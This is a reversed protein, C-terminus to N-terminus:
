GEAKMRESFAAPYLSAAYYGLPRTRYYDPIGSATGRCNGALGGRYWRTKLGLFARDFAEDLVDDIRGLARLRDHCYLFGATASSELRTAPEDIVLHWLGTDPDQHRVLGALTQAITAALRQACPDTEPLAHLSETAGLIAWQQARSWAAGRSGGDSSWHHWLGDPRQNRETLCDYFRAARRAPEPDDTLRSLWFLGPLANGDETWLYGPIRPRLVGDRVPTQEFWARALEVGAAALQNNGTDHGYRMLLSGIMAGDHNIGRGGPARARQRALWEPVSAAMRELNNWVAAQWTEDAVAAALLLHTISRTYIPDGWSMWPGRGGSYRHVFEARVEAMLSTTRRRKLTTTFDASATTLGGELISNAIHWFYADRGYGQLFHHMGEAVPANRTPYYRSHPLFGGNRAFAALDREYTDAATDPFLCVRYANLDRPPVTPLRWDDTLEIAVGLDLLQSVLALTHEDEGTEPALVLAEPVYQGRPSDLDGAPHHITKM